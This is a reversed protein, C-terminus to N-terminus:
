VYLRLAATAIYQFIGGHRVELPISSEGTMWQSCKRYYDEFGPPLEPKEPMKARLDDNVLSQDDDVHFIGQILRCYTEADLKKQLLM